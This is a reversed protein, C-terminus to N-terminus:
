ACFKYDWLVKLECNSRKLNKTTKKKKSFFLGCIQFFSFDHFKHAKTNVANTIERRPYVFPMFEWSLKSFRAKSPLIERKLNQKQAQQLQEVVPCTHILVEISSFRDLVVKRLASFALGLQDDKPLNVIRDTYWCLIKPSFQKFYSWSILFFAMLVVQKSQTKICLQLNLQGNRFTSKKTDRENLTDWCSIAPFRELEACSSLLVKKGSCNVWLRKSKSKSSKWFVAQSTTLKVLFLSSFTPRWGAKFVAFSFFLVRFGCCGCGVQSHDCHCCLCCISWLCFCDLLLVLVLVRLFLSLFLFLLLLLFM